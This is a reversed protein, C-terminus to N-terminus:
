VNGGNDNEKYQKNINDIAENILNAMDQFRDYRELGHNCDTIGIRRDCGCSVLSGM